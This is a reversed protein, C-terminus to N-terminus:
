IQCSTSKRAKPLYCREQRFVGEIQRIKFRYTRVRRSGDAATVTIRLLSRRSVLLHTHFTLKSRHTTHSHRRPAGACRECLYSVHEGPTLLIVVVRSLLLRKGRRSGAFYMQFPRVSVHQPRPQPPPPPTSTTFARDAGYATGSPNSAVLRYHITTGPPLGSLTTTVQQGTDGAGNDTTTTASGYAPTAGYEFQYRADAGRSRVAGTLTAGSSSIAIADGTAVQPPVDPILRGIQGLDPVTFWLNEDSGKAITLPQAGSPLGTPFESITGGPTIRGVQNANQEVFWINGEPGVTLDKVGAGRTLGSAYETIGGTPTIRGIANGRAEDFWLNGDPGAVISDPYPCPTLTSDCSNAPLPGFNNIAVGQPTMQQIQGNASDTFWLDGDPGTVIKTFVPASGLGNFETIQGTLPDIKGVKAAFPETFWLDGDPGSTIAYIDPTGTLGASFETIVGQPTIRGIKHGERETFWVNGDPGMTLDSLSANPTLGLGYETVQGATTIRGIKNTGLDSFWLDGGPGSAIFTPFSPAELQYTTIQVAAAGSPMGATISALCIFVALALRPRALVTTSIM